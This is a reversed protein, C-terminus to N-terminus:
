PTAASATLPRDPTSAPDPKTPASAPGSGAPDPSLTGLSATATAQDGYGYRTRAQEAAPISIKWVPNCRPRSEIMPGTEVIVPLTYKTM